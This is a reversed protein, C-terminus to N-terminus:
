KEESGVEDSAEPEVDDSAESAVERSAEPEGDGSTESGVEDSAEPEGDGSTESGVEDSAEPEGDDSTESAVEDSAEPEIDDSTESEVEQSAEPEIDDLTESAVEQSAEPEVDDSTESSQPASEEKNAADAAAQQAAELLKVAKEEGIGRIQVLDEIGAEIIEEAAQVIADATEQPLRGTAANTQATAKKVCGAARVMFPHVRLGSIPFNGAARVTQAGYYAEAPVEVAGLTDSEVRLTKHDTM